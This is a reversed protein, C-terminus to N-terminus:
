RPIRPKHREVVHIRIGDPDYIVMESESEDASLTPPLLVTVGLEMAREYVTAIDSSVIAMMGEGTAMSDPGPRVMKPLPPNDVHLLGIMAGTLERDKVSTAGKLVAFSVERGEDLQLQELVAPRSIDGSYSVTYGLAYSYFRKSAEIDSVVLATRLMVSDIVIEDAETNSETESSASVAVLMLLVTSVLQRILPRYNNM